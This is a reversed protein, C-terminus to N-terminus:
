SHIFYDVENFAFPRARRYNAKDDEKEKEKSPKKRESLFSLSVADFSLGLRPFVLAIRDSFLFIFNSISRKVTTAKHTVATVPMAMFLSSM